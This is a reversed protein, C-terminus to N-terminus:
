ATQRWCDARQVIPGRGAGQGEGEGSEFPGDDTDIRRVVDRLVEGVRGGTFREQDCESTEWERQSAVNLLLKLHELIQAHGDDEDEAAQVKSLLVLSRGYLVLGNPRKLISPFQIVLLLSVLNDLCETANTHYEGM